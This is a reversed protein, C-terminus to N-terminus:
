PDLDPDPMRNLGRSPFVTDPNHWGPMTRQEALYITTAGSSGSTNASAPGGLYSVWALPPPAAVAAADPRAGAADYLALKLSSLSGTHHIVITTEAPPLNDSLVVYTARYFGPETLSCQFQTSDVLQPFHLIDPKSAYVMLADLKRSTQPMVPVQPLAAGSWKLEATERINESGSDADPSPLPGVASRVYAVCNLASRSHHLNDVSLHFFVANPRGPLNSVRAKVPNPALSLRLARRWSHSWKAEVNRRILSALEARDAFTRCNLQMDRLMGDQYSLGEEQFGLAELKLYSAIALEQHTYLSGRRQPRQDPPPTPASLASTSLWERAFDIFLYYESTELERLINPLTGEAKSDRAAVYVEYGLDQLVQRVREVHPKEDPGQGSSLFVKARVPQTM